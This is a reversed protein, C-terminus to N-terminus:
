KQQTKKLPHAKIEIAMEVIGRVEEVLRYIGREFNSPAMWVWPISDARKCETKLSCFHEHHCTDGWDQRPCGPQLASTVLVHCYCCLGPSAALNKQALTQAQQIQQTAQWSVLCTLFINVSNIAKLSATSLVTGKAEMASCCLRVLRVGLAPWWFALQNMGNFFKSGPLNLVQKKSSTYEHQDSLYLSLQSLWWWSDPLPLM